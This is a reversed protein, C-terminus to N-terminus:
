LKASTLLYPQKQGEQFLLIKFYLNYKKSIFTIAETLSTVLLVKNRSQQMTTTAMHGFNPLNVMERLSTIM